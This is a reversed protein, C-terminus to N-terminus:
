SLFFCLIRLLLYFHARFSWFPVFHSPYSIVQTRFSRSDTCCSSACTVVFVSYMYESVKFVCCKYRDNEEYLQTSTTLKTLNWILVGYLVNFWLRKSWVTLESAVDSWFTKIVDRHHWCNKLYTYIFLSDDSIVLTKAFLFFVFSLQFKQKCLIGASANIYQRWTLIM